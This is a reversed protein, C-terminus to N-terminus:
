KRSVSFHSIQKGFRHSIDKGHHYSIGKGFPHSFDKVNVDPWKKSNLSKIYAHVLQPHGRTKSLIITSWTKLKRGVPCGYNMALKSIEEHSLLPVDYIRDLSIELNLLIRSPIEGQTTIIVKGGLSLLTFLLGELAREYVKAQPGFNLDDIVLKVSDEKDSWDVAKRFLIEKIHNPEMGHVNLWQWECEYESIMLRALVSKGMGTSGKLVVLGKAELYGRLESVYKERREIKKSLLPILYQFEIGPRVETKSESLGSSDLLSNILKMQQSSKTIEKLLGGPVPQTTVKEFLELFDRYDLKRDKERCIVEWVHALLHPIAKKSESPFIGLKDGHNCINREILDKLYEKHKNGTNWVIRKVLHERFDSEESDKIFQLLPNPLIVQKKLFSKLPNIDMRSFKCSDWYDLGKNVGFPSNKEKGRDATTLFHLEIRSEPNDEQHKWFNSIAELIEKSRLTVTKKSLIHKVQITETKMPGMVDIDEASELFLVEDNKLNIWMNVTQWIQYAYGKLSAVAQRKKDVVLEKLIKEELQFVKKVKKM